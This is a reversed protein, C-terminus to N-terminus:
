KLLDEVEELLAVNDMDHTECFEDCKKNIHELAADIKKQQEQYAYWAWNVWSAIGSALGNDTYCGLEDSWKIYPLKEAVYGLKEFESKVEDNEERM